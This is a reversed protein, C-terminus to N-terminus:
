RVQRLWEELNYYTCVRAIRGDRITLFAGAPLVYRQGRAPPLGADAVLYTGHVIFEAAARTGSTDVMVVIDTLQERYARDMRQMFARFVPKGREIGGQNIAHEVDDTLLALFPERDGGANFRRYYEGVLNATAERPDSM